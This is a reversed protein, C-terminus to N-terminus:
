QGYYEPYVALAIQRLALTLRQSPRSSSDADILYVAGNRVATTDAFGQRSKIEGLPDDIFSVNTLIVEPNRELIAEASPAIWGTKDAFVNLAGTIELMENLFTERGMTAPNPFPSLEFYVPKKPSITRGVAAVAEIERDMERILGEGREPVGLGSAISMIDQRIDDISRSTPIYLVRVGMGSLLRFPDEGTGFSNHESAIVIDPQLNVLVEPDPYFFDIEPIGPSLGPLGLSYRDAAVIDEGLGLGAIIETNSPATSVLRLSDAPGGTESPSPAGKGCGAIIAATVFLPLVARFFRSMGRNERNNM